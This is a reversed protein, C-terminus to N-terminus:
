SVPSLLTSLVENAAGNKAAKEQERQKAKQEAWEAQRPLWQDIEAFVANARTLSEKWDNRLILRWGDAEQSWGFNNEQSGGYLKAEELVKKAFANWEKTPETDWKPRINAFNVGHSTGSMTADPYFGVIKPM